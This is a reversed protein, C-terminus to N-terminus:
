AGAVVEPKIDPYDEIMDQIEEKNLVGEHAGIHQVAGTANATGWKLATKTSKGALIAGLFGSAMADGAGTKGKPQEPYPEMKLIQDQHNIYAGESGATIVSTEVGIQKLAEIIEKISDTSNLGTIREAEERNVFLYKVKPLIEKITKMGKKMQYTGPNCALKTDPNQKLYQNLEEQLIEFNPGLSTYYILECSPINGLSYERDVYNSLITRDTKYHLIMSYRSDKEELVKSFDTNVGIKELKKKIVHGNIDGGIETIIATSYGQKKLGIAVNAANGGVAQHTDEIPVKDGYQFCLKVEDHELDEELSAENIILFTDVTSDGITIIDFDQNM